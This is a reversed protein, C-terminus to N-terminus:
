NNRSEKLTGKSHWTMLKECEPRIGVSNFKLPNFQSSNAQFFQFEFIWQVGFFTKKTKKQSIKANGDECFNQM